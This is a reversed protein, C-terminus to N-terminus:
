EYLTHNGHSWAPPGCFVILRITRKMGSFPSTTTLSCDFCTRGPASVSAAAAPAEGCGPAAVFGDIDTWAAV